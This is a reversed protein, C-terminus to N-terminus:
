RAPPKARAAQAFELIRDGYLLTDSVRTEEDLQQFLQGALPDELGLPRAEPLSAFRSNALSEGSWLAHKGDSIYGYLSGTAHPGALANRGLHATGTTPLGLLHLLSPAVDIQGSQSPLEGKVRGGPLHLFLPVRNRLPEPEPVELRRLELSSMRCRHDGSMILVTNDWLGAEQLRTVLLELASDRFRALQLYRGAMTGELEPPLKLLKQHPRLELFPYHMMTTTVYCFFPQREQKLLPVLREFLAADGLGWGVEEGRRAPELDDSFLQRAFGFHDGMVRTNWFAGDYTMVHLTSYGQESLVRPLARTANTPFLFCFPGGRPPHLSNLMVFMADSTSGSGTQDLADGYLSEERLRNLFPTVEQGNVEKGILFDQFSELQMMLVNCGKASGFHPHRPGVTDRSVRLRREIVQAEVPDPAKLRPRSWQVIDYVHYAVLGRKQVHSWNYLRNRMQNSGWPNAKWHWIGHGLLMLGLPLAAMVVRRGLGPPTTAPGSKALVLPLALALDILLWLDRATALHGLQLRAAQVPAQNQPESLYVFHSVTLFDAFSRYYILDGWFLASAAAALCWCSLAGLRPSLLLSLSALSWVFAASWLWAPAAPQLSSSMLGMVFAAKLLVSLTAWLPWGCRQLAWGSPGRGRRVLWALGLWALCLGFLPWSTSIM